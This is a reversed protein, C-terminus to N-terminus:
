RPDVTRPEVGARQHFEAADVMVRVIRGGAVLGARDTLTVAFTLRRGEIRELTASAEVETGVASPSLHELSAKMGVTTRGEPLCGAIAAMAAAECLALVRPTGLVDVEGSGLARATDAEAVTAPLTASLGPALTM